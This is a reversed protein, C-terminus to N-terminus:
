EPDIQIFGAYARVIIFKDIVPHDNKVFLLHCKGSSRILTILIIWLINHIIYDPFNNFFSHIFNIWEKKLLKGPNIIWLISHIIHILKNSEGTM